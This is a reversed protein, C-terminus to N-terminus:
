LFYGIFKNRVLYLVSISFLIGFQLLHTPEWVWTVLPLNFPFLFSCKVIFENQNELIHWNRTNAEWVLETPDSFMRLFIQTPNPDILLQCLPKGAPETTFFGGALVPSMPEIGPNLCDRQTPSGVVIWIGVWELVRVQFIKHVSSGPLRCDMPDCLTPCFQAVSPVSTISILLIQVWVHTVQGVIIYEM